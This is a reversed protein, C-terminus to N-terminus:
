CLKKMGTPKRSCHECKSFVFPSDYQGNYGYKLRSWDQQSYADCYPCNFAKSGYTAPYYEAM